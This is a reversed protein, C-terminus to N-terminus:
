AGLPVYPASPKVYPRNYEDARLAQRPPQRNMQYKSKVIPRSANHRRIANGENMAELDFRDLQVKNRGTNILAQEIKSM